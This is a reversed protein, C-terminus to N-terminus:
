RDGFVKSSLVLIRSERYDWQHLITAYHENSGSVIAEGGIARFGHTNLHSLKTPLIIHCLEIM